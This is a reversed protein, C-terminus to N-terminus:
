DADRKKQHQTAQETQPRAHKDALSQGGRQLLQHMPSLRNLRLLKAVSHMHRPALLHGLHRVGKVAHGLPQLLSFFQAAIQQGIHRVFQAVRKMHQLAIQLRNQIPHVRQLPLFDATQEGVGLVQITEDIIQVFQRLRLRLLQRQM